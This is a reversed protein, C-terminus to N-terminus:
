AYKLALMIADEHNNTVVYVRDENGFDTIHFMGGVKFEEGRLICWLMNDGLERQPYRYESLDDRPEVLMHWVLFKDPDVRLVYKFNAFREEATSARYNVTQECWARFARDQKNLGTKHTLYWNYLREGDLRLYRLMKKM